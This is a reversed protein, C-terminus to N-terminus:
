QHAARLLNPDGRGELARLEVDSLFEERGCGLIRTAAELAHAWTSRNAFLMGFVDLTGGRNIFGLASTRSPGADLRRLAGLM